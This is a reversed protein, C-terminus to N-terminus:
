PELDVSWSRVGYRPDPSWTMLGHRSELNLSCTCAIYNLDPRWTLAGSNSIRGELKSGSDGLGSVLGLDQTWSDM